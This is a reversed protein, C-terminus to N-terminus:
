LEISLSLGLITSHKWSKYNDSQLLLYISPSIKGKRGEIGLYTRYRSIGEKEIFTEGIIYPRLEFTSLSWEPKILVDLRYRFSSKEIEFLRLETRHRNRFHFGGMNTQYSLRVSPRYEYSWINDYKYYEHRYLGEIQFKQSFQYCLIFEIFRDYYGQETSYFNNVLIGTSFNNKFSYDVFLEQWIEDIVDGKSNGSSPVFFISFIVLILIKKLSSINFYVM